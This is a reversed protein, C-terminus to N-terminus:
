IIIMQKEFPWIYSAYYIMSPEHFIWFLKYFDLVTECLFDPSKNSFNM